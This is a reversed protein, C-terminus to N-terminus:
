TKVSTAILGGTIAATGALIPRLEKLQNGWGEVRDQNAAWWGAVGAAANSAQEMSTSAAQSMARMAAGLQQGQSEAALLSDRFADARADAEALGAPNIAHGTAVVMEGLAETAVLGSPRRTQV